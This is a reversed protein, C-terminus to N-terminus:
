PSTPDPPLASPAVGGAVTSTPPASLLGHQPYIPHERPLSCVDAIQRVSMHSGYWGELGIIPITKGQWGNGPTADFTHFVIDQVGLTDRAHICTALHIADPTGLILKAPKTPHEAKLGRMVGVNMLIDPTPDIPEFAGEMDRIFDQMGGYGGQTLHSSMIEAYILTSYYITVSRKKADSVFQDIDRLLEVPNRTLYRIFVCTDWFLNNTIAM